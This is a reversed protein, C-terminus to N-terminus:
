AHTRLHEKKQQASKLTLIHVTYRSALSGIKEIGEKKRKGGKCDKKKKM